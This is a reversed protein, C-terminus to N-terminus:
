KSATAVIAEDDIIRMDTTSQRYNEFNVTYSFPSSNEGVNAVAVTGIFVTVWVGGSLNLKQRLATVSYSGVINQSKNSTVNDEPFSTGWFKVVQGDEPSVFITGVFVRFPKISSYEQALRNYLNMDPKQVSYRALTKGDVEVFGVFRIPMKELAPSAWFTETFDTKLDQYNSMCNPTKTMLPSVATQFLANGKETRAITNNESFTGVSKGKKWCQLQLKQEYVFNSMGYYIKKENALTVRLIEKEDRPNKPKELNFGLEQIKQPILSSTTPLAPRDPLREGDKKYNTNSFQAENQQQATNKLYSFDLAQNTQDLNRYLKNDQLYKEVAAARKSSIEEPSLKAWSDKWFKPLGSFSEKEPTEQAIKGMLHFARRELEISNLKSKNKWTDYFDYVHRLEHLLVQFFADSDSKDPRVYVSAEFNAGLKGSPFAEAMALMRSSVGKPMPRLAVPEFSFVGWIEKLEASLAPSWNTSNLKYAIKDITRCLKERDQVSVDSSFKDFKLNGLSCGAYPMKLVPNAFGAATTPLAAISFYTITFLALSFLIKFSNSM